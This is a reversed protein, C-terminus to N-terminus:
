FQTYKDKWLLIIICNGFLWVGSNKRYHIFKAKNLVLGFLASFMCYISTFESRASLSTFSPFLLRDLRSRSLLPAAQNKIPARILPSRPQLVQLECSCRWGLSAPINSRDTKILARERQAIGILGSLCGLLAPVAVSAIHICKYYCSSGCMCAHEYKPTCVCM